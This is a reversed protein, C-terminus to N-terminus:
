PLSTVKDISTLLGSINQLTEVGRLLNKIQVDAESAAQHLASAVMRGKDKADQLRYRLEQADVGGGTSKLLNVEYKLQEVQSEAHQARKKTAILNEEVNAIMNEMIKTENAEKIKLAELTREALALKQEVLEKEHVHKKCKVKMQKVYTVYQTNDHQLKEIQQRM